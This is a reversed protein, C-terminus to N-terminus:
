LTGNLLSNCQPIFGSAVGFVPLVSVPGHGHKAYPVFVHEVCILCLPAMITELFLLIVSIRTLKLIGSLQTGSM